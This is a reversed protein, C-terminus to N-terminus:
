PYICPSPVGAGNRYGCWEFSSSVNGNFQNPNLWHFLFSGSDGSGMWTGSLTMFDASLSGTLSYAEADYTFTGSVTSDSQTLNVTFNEYPGGLPGYKTTWTGNWDVVPTPTPPQTYYPLSELPGEVTAYYGWIWCDGSGSPNNIIWYDGAQYRGVVNGTVGVTLAGVIDYLEGPGRRCNTNVDVQAQPSSLTQTLTETATLTVTPTVTETPPVMETNPVATTAAVEGEGMGAQTQAISTQVLADTDPTEDGGLIQECGSLLLLPIVVFSLTILLKKSRM